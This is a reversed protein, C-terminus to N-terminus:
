PGLEEIRGEDRDQGTGRVPVPLMKSGRYRHRASLSIKALLINSSTVSSINTCSTKDKQKETMYESFFMALRGFFFGMDTSESGATVSM